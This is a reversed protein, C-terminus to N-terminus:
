KITIKLETRGIRVVDGTKLYQEDGKDLKKGNLYTGNTSGNDCLTFGNGKKKVVIHKKSMYNDTTVIEADPRCSPGANNKRGISNFEQSLTFQQSGTYENAVVDVILQQSETKPTKIVTGQGEADGGLVTKNSPSPFKSLLSTNLFIEHISNCFPCKINKRTGVMERTIVFTLDRNCRKCKIRIKLGEM